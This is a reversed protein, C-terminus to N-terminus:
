GPGTAASTNLPLIKTRPVPYTLSNHGDGMVYAEMTGLRCWRGTLAWTCVGQGGTADFHVGVGLIAAHLGHMHHMHLKLSNSPTNYCSWQTESTSHLTFVHHARRIRQTTQMTCQKGDMRCWWYFLLKLGQWVPFLM